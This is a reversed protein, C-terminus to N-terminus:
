DLNIGIQRLFGHTDWVAWEEAIREGDFRHM